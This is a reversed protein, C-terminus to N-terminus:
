QVDWQLNGCRKLAEVLSQLLGEVSFVFAETWYVDMSKHVKKDRALFAENHLVEKFKANVASRDQCKRRGGTKLDTLMGRFDM